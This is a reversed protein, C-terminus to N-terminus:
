VLMFIYFMVFFHAVVKILGLWRKGFFHTTRGSNNNDSGATPPGSPPDSALGMKHLAQDIQYFVQAEPSKEDLHLFAPCKAVDATVHCASPLTYSLSINIQLGLAPDNRDQIIVCICNKDSDLIQKLGSCCVPTPSKAQGKMYPLCKAMSLKEETCQEENKAKDEEGGGVVTTAVTLAISIAVVLIIRWSEM